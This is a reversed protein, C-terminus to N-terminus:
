TKNLKISRWKIKSTSMGFDSTSSVNKYVSIFSNLGGRGHRGSQGGGGGGRSWPNYIKSGRGQESSKKNGGRM